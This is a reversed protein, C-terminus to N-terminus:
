ARRWAFRTEIYRGAIVVPVFLILYAVAGMMLPTASGSFSQATTAQNLIEPVGIVTGLATNKTIAITRNTLPPVTLRIAQPLVIYRLTQFETLGTCRGAEWQGKRVSVIGAWFVEEAFAALVLSLVLWLVAFSPLTLGVNPLGFYVLLVLVLPPLARLIDVMVIIAANVAKLRFSRVVALALGLAIGTVIVCAAVEITVLMGKGIAPLYRAIIVPNFFTELFLAGNTM